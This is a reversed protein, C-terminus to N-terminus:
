GVRQLALSQFCLSQSCNNSKDEKLLRNLYKFMEIVNDTKNPYVASYKVLSHLVTDGYRNQAHM